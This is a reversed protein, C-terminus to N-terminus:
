KEGWATVYLLSLGIFVTSFIEEGASVAVSSKINDIPECLGSLTYDSRIASVIDSRLREGEEGDLDDAIVGEISVAITHNEEGFCPRIDGETGSGTEGFFVSISPMVDPNETYRLERFVHLGADTQYGNATTVGSLLQTLAAKISESRTM